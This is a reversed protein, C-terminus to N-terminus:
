VRIGVGLNQPWIRISLEEPSSRRSRLDKSCTMFIYANLLFIEM